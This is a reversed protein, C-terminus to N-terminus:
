TRNENGHIANNLGISKARFIHNLRYQRNYRIVHALSGPSLCPLALLHYLVHKCMVYFAVQSM